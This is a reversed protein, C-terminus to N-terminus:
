REGVLKEFRLDTIQFGKIGLVRATYRDAIVVEDGVRAMRGLNMLVHGAITDNEDDGIVIGLESEVQELLTRGNVEYGTESVKRIVPSPADPDFEDQIEGVLEELIDEMTIIGVTSGYEDVSIAMHTGLKRFEPLLSRISKSEPVFNVPRKAMTLEFEDGLERMMWFIDKTHVVGLVNELSGDCLPYRTHKAHRAKALNEELPRGTDLYNVDPSPVMAQRVTRFSFDLVRELLRKEDPGLIGERHSRDVIMRLEAASHAKEETSAPRLGLARLVLNATGNLSWIFPYALRYFWSLPAAGWLVVVEARQIALSKPALEGLVIHLFTIMLFAATVALTHAFVPQLSGTAVFIPEFLEAFAPEGIWGLGLSALTIGLQTASLYGDLNSILRKAALARRSGAKIMEQIRTERVKVIAFETAVFYGNLFVLLMAFLILLWQTSLDM